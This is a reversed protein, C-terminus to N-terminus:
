RIKYQNVLGDLKMAHDALAGTALYVEEASQRATEAGEAIEQATETSLKMNSAMSEISQNIVNISNLIQQDMSNAKSTIEAFIAADNRYDQVIEVMVGYDRRVDQNLFNLADTATKMLNGIAEKVQTTITQIDSVSGSASEALKRVEEAVVAFGKGAEGARAAEVAANLALLNTQAAIGGISGALTSINEVISANIIAQNLQESINSHMTGAVNSAKQARRELVITKEKITQAKSAGSEADIALDDINLGIRAGSSRISETAALVERMGSAIKQTSASIESMINVVSQSADVIEQNSSGVGDSTTAIQNLLSRLNSKESEISNIKQHNFRNSLTTAVILSVGFMLVTSIQITYDTILAPQNLGKGWILYVVRSINLLLMVGCSTIILALDFYLLYTAIIPFVFVYVLIRTSTFMAFTYIIGYGILTVYKMLRSEPSRYYLITAPIMPLLVITIFTLVYSLSKAGKYYEILYGIILIFDLVWNIALAVRNTDKNDGTKM